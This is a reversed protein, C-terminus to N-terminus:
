RDLAAEEPGQAVAPELADVGFEAEDPASELVAEETPPELELEDGEPSVAVEPEVADEPSPPVEPELTAATAVEAVPAAGVAEPDVVELRTDEGITETLPAPEQDGADQARRTSAM